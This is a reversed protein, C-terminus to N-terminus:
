RSRSPVVTFRSPRGCRWRRATVGGAAPVLELEERPERLAELDRDRRPGLKEGGLLGLELRPGLAPGDLGSGDSGM